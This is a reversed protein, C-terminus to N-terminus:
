LNKPTFKKLNTKIPPIKFFNRGDKGHRIQQLSCRVSSDHDVTTYNCDNAQERNLLRLKKTGRIFANKEASKSNRKRFSIKDNLHILEDLEKKSKKEIRKREENKNYQKNYELYDKMEGLMSLHPISNESMAFKTETEKQKEEIKTVNEKVTGIETEITVFKEKVESQLLDFKSDM